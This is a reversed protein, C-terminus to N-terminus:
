QERLLAQDEQDYTAASSVASHIPLTSLVMRKLWNKSSTVFTGVVQGGLPTTQVKWGWRSSV